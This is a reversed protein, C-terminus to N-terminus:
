PLPPWNSEPIVPEVDPTSLPSNLPYEITYKFQFPVRGEIGPPIMPENGDSTYFVPGSEYVTGNAVFDLAKILSNYHEHIRNLQSRAEVLGKLQTRNSEGTQSSSVDAEVKDLQDSLENHRIEWVRLRKRFSHFDDKKGPLDLVLRSTPFRKNWAIMEARMKSWERQVEVAEDKLFNDNLRHMVSITLPQLSEIRVERTFESRGVEIINRSNLNIAAGRLEDFYFHKKSEGFPSVLTSKLYFKGANLLENLDIKAAKIENFGELREREREESAKQAAEILAQQRDLEALREEEAVRREQLEKELELRENETKEKAAKIAAVRADAIRESEELAADMAQQQAVLESEVRFNIERRLSANQILLIISVCVFLSLLVSLLVVVNSVASAHNRLSARTLQAPADSYGVVTPLPPPSM